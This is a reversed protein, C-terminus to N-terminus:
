IHKQIQARRLTKPSPAKILLIFHAHLRPGALTSPSPAASISTYTEHRRAEEEIVDENLTLETVVIEHQNDFGKRGDTAVDAEKNGSIVWLGDEDDVKHPLLSIAGGFSFETSRMATTLHERTLNM